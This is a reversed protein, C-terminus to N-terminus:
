SSPPFLSEQGDAQAVMRDATAHFDARQKMLDFTHAGTKQELWEIL